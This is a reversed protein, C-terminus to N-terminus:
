AEGKGKSFFSVGNLRAVWCTELERVEPAHEALRGWHILPVNYVAVRESDVCLQGDFRIAELVLDKVGVPAADPTGSGISELQQKM